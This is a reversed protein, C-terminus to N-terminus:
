LKEDFNEVTLVEVNPHLMAIHEVFQTETDAASVGSWLNTTILALSSLAGILLRIKMLKLKDNFNLNGM